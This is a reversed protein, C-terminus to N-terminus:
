PQNSGMKNIKAPNVPEAKSAVNQQMTCIFYLAIDAQGSSTGIMVSLNTLEWPQKLYPQASLGHGSIFLGRYKGQNSINKTKLSFSTVDCSYM